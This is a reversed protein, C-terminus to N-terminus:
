QCGPPSGEPCREDYMSRGAFEDGCKSEDDISHMVSEHWLTFNAMIAKLVDPYQASVDNREGLDTELDYLM